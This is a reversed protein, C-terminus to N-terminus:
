EMGFPLYKWYSTIKLVALAATVGANYLTVICYVRPFWSGVKDAAVILLVSGIVLLVSCFRVVVNTGDSKFAPSVRVQSMSHIFSLVVCVSSVSVPTLQVVSSIISNM